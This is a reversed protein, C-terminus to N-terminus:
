ERALSDLIRSISADVVGKRSMLLGHAAAGMAMRKDENGVLEGVTATLAEANAVEVLGGADLFERAVVPFNETNPGVVIPKSFVAPEIMNQGGHATLSKGVFVVTACAYFGMLEGTTDVLLVDVAERPTSGAEGMTSRRVFSFGHKQIIDAVQDGREAHRPVIVLRLDKVDRRLERLGALLAAEEGPWTSGGVILPTTESIGLSALLRHARETSEPDAEAVDYKASGMVEVVTPDAGLGVLREADGQTQVMLARFTRLVPRLFASFRRYGRYSRESIRGNIMMVPVGRGATLRILNPWLECETLVLAVPRIARLARKVFMPFDSPVYLLVDASTVREEALRHGTSTNTTVVFAMSPDRKRLREMFRFAVLVEGVSVAHFWLRRREALRARVDPSYSGFREQFGQRYGGRRRMRLLFKPLLIVYGIAFLVNYVFWRM